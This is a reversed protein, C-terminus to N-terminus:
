YGKEEPSSNQCLSPLFSIILFQQSYNFGKFSPTVVQFVTFKFKKYKVIIIIEALKYINLDQSGSLNAPSLFERLIMKFNIKSLLLSIYSIIGQSTKGLSTLAFFFFRFWSYEFKKNAVIKVLYRFGLLALGTM